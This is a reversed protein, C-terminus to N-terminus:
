LPRIDPHLRDAGLEPRLHFRPGLRKVWPEAWRAVDPACTGVLRAGPDFRGQRELARVLDHAVTRLSLRGEGDLLQEGLPQVGWPKALEMVGFRSVAAIAVDPGDPAFAEVAAAHLRRGDKPFGILDIAVLGGIAKLRLLWATESLASLNARSVSVAAGTEALDVDVATLARTPQIALNVGGPGIHEIALAEAQAADVQARAADGSAWDQCGLAALRQELTAPPRTMGEVSSAPGVLRFAAPKGRAPEAVVEVEIREGVTPMVSSPRLRLTGAVEGMALRALGMRASVAEVRAAYRAGLRPTPDDERVILLREARGDLFVAARTEGPSVDVWASRRGIM